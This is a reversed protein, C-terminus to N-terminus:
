REELGTKIIGMLKENEYNLNDSSVRFPMLFEITINGGFIRYKGKIVFPIIESETDYAMKVAGIKFPLIEGKVKSITGEPFIGILDGNLLGDKAKKLADKDHIKRNVPIIGMHRFIIGYLGKYLEDKALFHVTRKTCGMILLPDFISTHNGALVCRGSNPINELGKYKPRFCITMFIKILPKLFRYLLPEM